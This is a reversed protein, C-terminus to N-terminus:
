TPIQATEGEGADREEAEDLLALYRATCARFCLGVFMQRATTLPAYGNAGYELCPINM